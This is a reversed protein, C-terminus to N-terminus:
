LEAVATHVGQWETSAAREELDYYGKALQQWCPQETGRAAKGARWILRTMGVTFSSFADPMLSQTTYLLLENPLHGFQVEPDFM